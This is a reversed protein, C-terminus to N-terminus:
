LSLGPPEIPTQAPAVPQSAQIRPRLLDWLEHTESDMPDFFNTQRGPDTDLHHVWADGSWLYLMERDGRIM